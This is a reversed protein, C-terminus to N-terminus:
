CLGWAFVLAKGGPAGSMSFTNRTPRVMPYGRAQHRALLSTISREMRWLMLYRLMVRHNTIAEKMAVMKRTQPM